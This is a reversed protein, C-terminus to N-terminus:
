REGGLQNFAQTRPTYPVNSTEYAAPINQMEWQQGPTTASDPSFSKPNYISPRYEDEDEEEDERPPKKGFFNSYVAWVLNFFFLVRNM